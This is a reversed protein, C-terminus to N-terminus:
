RSFYCCAWRFIRCTTYEDPLSRDQLPLNEVDAPIALFRGGKM